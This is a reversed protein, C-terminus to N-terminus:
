GNREKLEQRLLLMNQNLAELVNLLLDLTETVDNTAHFQKRKNKAEVERRTRSELRGVKFLNKDTPEGWFAHYMRDLVEVDVIGDKRKLVQWEAKIRDQDTPDCNARAERM